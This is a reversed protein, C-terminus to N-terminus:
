QKDQGALAAPQVGIRRVLDAFRADSHLPRYDPFCAFTYFVAAHEDCALKLWRFTEERDGLALYILAITEGSVYQRRSKDILENLIRRADSTRGM